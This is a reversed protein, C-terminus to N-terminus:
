HSAPDRHENDGRLPGGRFTDGRFAGGRFPGDCEVSGCYVAAGRLELAGSASKSVHLVGGPMHLEQFAHGAQGNSGQQMLYAAAACANTGCAATEGVGREWVRLHWQGARSALFGVNVGRPFDTHAQMARGIREVQAEREDEVVLICHPNGLDFGVAVRVDVNQPLGAKLHITSAHGMEAVLVASEARRSEIRVARVGADTAVRADELGRTRALHLGVCRLGNGCAEPRGGDANFLTMRADAEVSEGVVLLGDACEGKFLPEACLARALEPWHVGAQETFLLFRNDAGAYLEASRLAAAPNTGSM